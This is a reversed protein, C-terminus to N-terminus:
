TILTLSSGAVSVCVLSLGWTLNGSFTPRIPNRRIELRLGPKLPEAKWPPMVSQRHREATPGPEDFMAALDSERAQVEHVDVEVEVPNM